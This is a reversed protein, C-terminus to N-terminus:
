SPTAQSGLLSATAERYAPSALMQAKQVDRVRRLFAVQTDRSVNVGFQFTTVPTGRVPKVVASCNPFEAFAITQNNIDM